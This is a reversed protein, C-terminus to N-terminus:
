SSTSGDRDVLEGAGIESRHKLRSRDSASTDRFETGTQHRALRTVAAPRTRRELM